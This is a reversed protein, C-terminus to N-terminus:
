SRLTQSRAQEHIMEVIRHEEIEDNEATGASEESGDVDQGNGAGEEEEYETVVEPSGISKKEEEDGEDASGTKREHPNGVLGKKRCYAVYKDDPKDELSYEEEVFIRNPGLELGSITGLQM